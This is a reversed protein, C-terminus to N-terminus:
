WIMTQMRCSRAGRFSFRVQASVAAVADLVTSVQQRTLRAVALPEPRTLVTEYELMLPVSLLATVKKELAAKLLWRSAGNPSRLAAVVVDTDLVLRM